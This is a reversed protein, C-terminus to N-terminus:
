DDSGLCHVRKVRQEDGDKEKKKKRIRTLDM